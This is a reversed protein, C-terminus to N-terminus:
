MGPDLVALEPLNMDVDMRPADPWLQELNYFQRVPEYFVHVIVDAYDMLVWKGIKEGEIGLPIIGAKKMDERIADALAQVQRDSGGSCIVFYDTFSSVASVNLITLDRAKKQLLANVCLLVRKRIETDEQNM